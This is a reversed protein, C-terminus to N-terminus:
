KRIFRINILEFPKLTIKSDSMDGIKEELINVISHPIYESLSINATQMKNSSNYFRLILGNKDIPSKVTELVINENDSTYDPLLAKDSEGQVEILPNNFLYAQKYTESGLNGRHPFLALRIKHQGQDVNKGPGGLPSRILNVDIVSGKCRFGYKCDNIVSIGMNNDSLDAFKQGSVEFQAKEAPTNETTKREIHGFQINFSCKDSKVCTPFAVRLMRKKQHCDIDIDFVAMTSNDTITIKENITTKGIKFSIKAYAEPGDKGTSFSTCVANKKIKYYSHPQIDWCDGIDHYVSFVGMPKKYDTFEKKLLKDYYSVIVGNKFQIKVRDNEISNHTAEASFTKIEEGDSVKRCGMPPVTLKIWNSGNKVSTEYPYSNFNCLVKDSTLKASLYMIADSLKKYIVEYRAVSEEYVRNISSGPLIDHFQYLLIEKWIEDLEESSIPPIIGNKEAMCLLYEYNKLAFECKRNFKKNKSQTTYTGRHKELYLEGRYTPYPTIKDDAKKFFDLAKEPKVRPVSKLDKYRHLREIHEFGPGAGGDGIGYLMMSKNSIKREQFNKEGFIIRDARCPGNYTDEPLMHAFVESGDLGQWKFTHYPFKTVTNWSMKQTLFYPVDALKMVQPICASYGFSDPVWFIKMDQGFEDRFFRKGYYFQRIMSEGGILNSDMEVWTAGQVDWRPTKALELVRDYVSPYSEKVWQYLQAQSAGFIYDDYRNINTFQNTFTRAAKRKSERIPWLWALDLHAHGVASYEFVNDGDNKTELIPKLMNRCESAKKENIEKTKPLVRKVADLIVKKFEKDDISEYVYCLTELDYSLARIEKNEKAICLQSFRSEKKMNGFLDNAGADIWFDVERGDTLNNNLVVRKVPKGLSYDFNSAYCTIAQKPEGYRDYILGEGGCNILFVIESAEYKEPIKGTIHFWACDFVNEAWKDNVKITKETGTTKENFSVPEKTVYGTCSLNESIVTYAKNELLQKATEKGKKITIPSIIKKM